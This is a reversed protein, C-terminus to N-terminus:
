GAIKNTMMVIASHTAGMPWLLVTGKSPTDKTITFDWTGSRPMALIAREPPPNMRSINNIIDEDYATWGPNLRRAVRAAWCWTAVHCTAPVLDQCLPYEAQEGLSM